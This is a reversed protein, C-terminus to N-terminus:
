AAETKAQDAAADRLVGVRETAAARFTTGDVPVDLVAESAQWVVRIEDVDNLANVAAIAARAETIQEDTWAPPLEKPTVSDVAKPKEKGAAISTTGAQDMEEAAYIGSLDNPFAKRLALAEAVKALMVDPMQAWLGAPKHERTLPMYSALRAVAVLPEAFGIRYVGIKAASPAEVNLWVDVWEGDPGCWMPATQGAYEGSRQAVIRLGDISAQITYRTSQSRNDWRGIMYIQRSFPDLGTRQAYSLFLSLDAKTAQELGLSRLVALQKDDWYDQDDKVALATM